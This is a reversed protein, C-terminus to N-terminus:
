RCRSESVEKGGNLISASVLLLLVFPEMDVTCYNIASKFGFSTFTSMVQQFEGIGFTIVNRETIGSKRRASLCVSLCAPM